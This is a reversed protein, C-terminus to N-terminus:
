TPLRFYTQIASRLVAPQPPIRFTTRLSALIAPWEASGVPFSGLFQALDVSISGPIEPGPEAPLTAALRFVDARHKEIDKSDVPEGDAKLKTLRLWAHAKLPILSTANAVWLGDREDHHTRVLSYYADDALIASLSHHGPVIVVPIVHLGDGLEFGAPNRSCFELKSPFNEKKPKAFRYLIPAGNARERIEYEGEEIFARMATIFEQNLVEIMLMLDLDKTARFELGLSTFWEDCAAGGILAFFGEFPRFRERFM